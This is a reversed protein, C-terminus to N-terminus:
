QEVAHGKSRGGAGLRQPLADRSHQERRDHRRRKADGVLARRRCEPGPLDVALRVQHRRRLDRQHERVDHQDGLEDHDHFQERQERRRHQRQGAGAGGFRLQLPVGHRRGAARAHRTRGDRSRHDRRNGVASRHRHRVAGPQRATGSRDPARAAHMGNAGSGYAAQILVWHTANVQPATIPFSVSRSGAPVTVGGAPTVVQGEMSGNVWVAAGGAPAPASLTVTGTTTEGGDIRASQLSVGALTPAPAASGAPLLTLWAEPAQYGDVFTGTRIVVRTPVTVPSTTITFTADAAGEPVLVKAPPRVLGTDESVLTVDVGGAPAAQKLTLKGTVSNGGVIGDTNLALSFLIPWLGLSNMEWGGAYGARLSGIVAGPVHVSTIPSVVADTAGAPIFVQEPAESHPMDSAIRVMAGGPPAPANLTVRGQTSHAGSVSGPQIVFWFLDLGPPTPPSAVVRFPVGGSWPGPVAGHVARVRWFYNGPALDSMLVYDSRSINQVLLVGFVGEFNPEDDVDLDYGAIQPNATDTWDFKFPLSVTAGGAPSLPTPPPPVPAGNTIKVNVAPSPLGIVNDVSVARVRYYINPIENGWGAGAKTGFTMPNVTLTHPHSFNPADDAELLYYHAGPVDDWRIQFTEYQHFRSGNPPSTINPITAPAPGLGTITISRAASWASDISGTAGGVLQSARVRWFYTGNAVGSVRAQTPAPDGSSIDTFGSAVVVTFSSTTGVQWTYSGIPGDPDSVASWRLTIPQVLAAGSAPAVLAPAPPPTPSQATGTLTFTALALLIAGFASRRHM